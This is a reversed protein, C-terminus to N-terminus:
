KIVNEINLLYMQRGNGGHPSDICVMKGNTSFRPHLDCRWEGVYESPSNFSGLDIRSDTPLHYLYPTQLRSKTNAYNDCLIWEQGNGQPLYTQHGNVPMKEVGIREYKGTKDELIYFGQAQGMPKTYANIHAPNSWIFHSTFGSPDICFLEKGNDSATFMRTIFGGSAMKQREMRQPRWRHLFTFRSGDTNVLLHNVWHFNDLVSAGNYPISALEALSFLLTDKGTKLDLKYLGIEKPAKVNEYLDDVGAYGYGPRLNQIRSFETGIAWNGDPSLAYITKPLTQKKGTKVNLIHSVFHEGLRDNWIIKDKSGPVWQLMCGQQWGWSVSSGLDIWRDNDQLDIMGIRIEDDPEPSRHEFGVEMGLVYRNTPDFQLKDYYGFWHFKPGKTIARIPILPSVVNGGFLQANVLTGGALLLFSKLTDRRNM